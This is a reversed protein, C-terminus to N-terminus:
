SNAEAFHVNTIRKSDFCIATGEVWVPPNAGKMLSGYKIELNEQLVSIDGFTFRSHEGTAVHDYTLTKPNDIM